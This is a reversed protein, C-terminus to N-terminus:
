EKEEKEREALMANAISYATSACHAAQCGQPYRQAVGALAQGAFRDRLSKEYAKGGDNKAMTM